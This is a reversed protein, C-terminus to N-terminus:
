VRTVADIRDLAFMREEDRLHCWATLLHRDLEIPEVVRASSRGGANTYSIRVATGGTISDALLAQEAGSLHPAHLDIAAAVASPPPAQRPSPALSDEGPSGATVTWPQADGRSRLSIVEALREIPDLEPAALLAAALTRPDAPADPGPRGAAPRPIARRTPAPLRPRVPARLRASREIATAGSDDEGVPAYGQGRLAALTEDVPRASGLVTPALVALRLPRLARAGAIEALLAPDDARLVCRVARVRVAGHQRAVDALLYELVQPLAGGAAVERL